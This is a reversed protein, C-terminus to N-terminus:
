QNINIDIDSVESNSSNIESWFYWAPGGSISYNSDRGYIKHHTIM